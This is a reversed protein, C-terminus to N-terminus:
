CHFAYMGFSSRPLDYPRLFPSDLPWLVSDVVRYNTHRKMTVNRGRKWPSDERTSNFIKRSNYAFENRMDMMPFAFKFFYIVSKGIRARWSWESVLYIKCKTSSICRGLPHTGAKCESPSANLERNPFYWRSEPGQPKRRLGDSLRQFM